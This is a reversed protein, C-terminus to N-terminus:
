HPYPVINYHLQQHLCEFQEQMRDDRLLHKQLQFALMVGVIVQGVLMAMLSICFIAVMWRAQTLAGCCGLTATLVVTGGGVVIGLLMHTYSGQGAVWTIGAVLCLAAVLVLLSVTVVLFRLCNYCATGGANSRM